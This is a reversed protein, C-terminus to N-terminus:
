WTYRGVPRWAQKGSERAAQRERLKVSTQQPITCKYPFFVSITDLCKCSQTIDLISWILKRSIFAVIVFTNNIMCTNNGSTKKSMVNLALERPYEETLRVPIPVNADALFIINFQWCLPVSTLRATISHILTYRTESSQIINIIIIIIIIIVIIILLLRDPDNILKWYFTWLIGALTLRHESMLVIDLCSGIM